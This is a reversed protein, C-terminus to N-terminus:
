RNVIRLIKERAKVAAIRKPRQEYDSVSEMTDTDNPCQSEMSECEVPYMPNPPRGLGKKSVSKVKVSRIHGDSSPVLETVRGRAGNDEIQVVDGVKPNETGKFRSSRTRTHKQERSANNNREARNTTTKLNSKFQDYAVEEKCQMCQSERTQRTICESEWNLTMLSHVCKNQDETHLRGTLIWGLTSGLLFLGPTIEIKHPLM